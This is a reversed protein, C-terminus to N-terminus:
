VSRKLESLRHIISERMASNPPFRYFISVLEAQKQKEVLFPLLLKCIEIAESGSVRWRFVQRNKNTKRNIAACNGGLIQHLKEITSKSTM